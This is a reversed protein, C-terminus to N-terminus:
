HRYVCVKFPRDTVKADLFSCLLFLVLTSLFWMGKKYCRLKIYSTYIIEQICENETPSFDRDPSYWMLYFLIMVPSCETM